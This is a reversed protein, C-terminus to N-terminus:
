KKASRWKNIQEKSTVSAARQAQKQEAAVQGPDIGAPGHVAFSSVLRSTNVSGCAPCPPAEAGQASIMQRYLKDFTEGCDICRFEYVPM